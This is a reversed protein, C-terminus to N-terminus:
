SVATLDSGDGHDGENPFDHGPLLGLGITIRVTFSSSSGAKIRKVGVANIFIGAPLLV